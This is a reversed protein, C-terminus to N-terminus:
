RKRRTVLVGSALITLVVSTPEPVIAVRFGVDFNEFEPLNYNRRYSQLDDGGFSSGRYGKKSSDIVADNWEWVNGGQDFTGYFSNASYSGVDTTSGIVDGYNADAVSIIDSRTPYIWYGGTGDKGSDYYAAKYWENESPLHVAAGPNVAVIGSGQGSILTYAGTETSGSGQGNGLWNTFRACDFWSVYVVPHNALSSTVTYSYSGDSGSQTIGYSSMNTNYLSYTDTGAKANLFEAYQANTVEYKGIQYSYDVKGYGTTPDAANGPNGVGIWEINVFALAPTVLSMSALFALGLSSILPHKM